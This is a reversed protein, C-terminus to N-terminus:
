LGTVIGGGLGSEWLEEDWEEEGTELLIEGGVEVAGWGWDHRGV